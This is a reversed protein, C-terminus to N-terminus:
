ERNLRWIGVMFFLLAFGLLIGVNPLIGVVGEGLVILKNFGLMAWTSPLVKVVKQYIDPTIELPWWAGGLAALLMSFLTTLSGAQSRTKAFAGLMVGFATGALGFSVLLLALAAPSKGWNVHMVFAGFLILISMQLLGMLLRGLIKGSLITGRSSPSIMLRKMTGGLRESVFVESAGLLTILVWTVLQGASSQEFGSSFGTWTSESPATIVTRTPPDALAEAAMEFSKEFYAAKAIENEFPQLSAASTTSQHAISIISNIQNVKSLVANDIVLTRNDNPLQKLELSVPENAKLAREFGEPITLLALAKEEEFLKYAEDVTKLVPRVIESTELQQELQKSLVSQDQDVLIFPIRTDADEEPARFMGDMGLGIVVTFVVPLILFFVLTSKESFEIKIDNWAISFIKRM